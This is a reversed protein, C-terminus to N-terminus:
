RDLEPAGGDGVLHSVRHSMATGLLGFKAGRLPTVQLANNPRMYMLMVQKKRLLPLMTLIASKSEFLQTMHLM